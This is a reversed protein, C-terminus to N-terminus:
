LGARTASSSLPRSVSTADDRVQAIQARYRKDRSRSRFDGARTPETFHSATRVVITAVGSVIDADLTIIPFSVVPFNYIIVSTLFRTGRGSAVASQPTTTIRPAPDRPAIADLRPSVTFAIHNM